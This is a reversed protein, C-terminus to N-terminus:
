AKPNSRVENIDLMGNHDKDYLELANQIRVSLGRKYQLQGPREKPSKMNKPTTGPTNGDTHMDFSVGRQPKLTKLESILSDTLVCM